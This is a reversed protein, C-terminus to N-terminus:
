GAQGSCAFKTFNSHCTFLPKVRRPLKARERAEDTTAGRALAVGM